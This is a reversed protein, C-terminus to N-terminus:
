KKKGHSLFNYINAEEFTLYHTQRPNKRNNNRLIFEQLVCLEQQVITKTNASTYVIGTDILLENVLKIANAKGSEDCRAGSRRPFRMDKIKFILNNNSPEYDIFGVLGAYNIDSINYKTQIAPQLLTYTYEDTESLENWIHTEKDYILIKQSTKNFLVIFTYDKFNLISSTLYKYIHYELSQINETIPSSYYYNLLEHKENFLLVDVLHEIFLEGLVSYDILKKDVFERMAIGCYKYWSPDGREVRKAEMAYKFTLQYNNSMELLIEYGKHSKGKKGILEPEDEQIDLLNRKGIIPNLVDPNLMADDGVDIYIHSPKSDLPRSRELVSAKTNTLEIPQFLYYEGVNCLYGDHSYKDQIIEKEDIIKTLAMNIQSIDYNKVRNIERILADKKYFHRDKMCMKIINIIHTSNIGVFKENYTHLVLDKELIKASPKCDYQCLKYDCTSSYNVDGVKFDEIVKGTSLIQVVPESFNDQTFNIQDHNILCDISNEKLLRSVEGIQIAKVEANRYVYLDAAEIQASPLITAHLYIEVNRHEFPLDRHSGNRVGRGIIQEIRNMNFWPEMIHIQRIFKLDIGESGAKSILIVKIKNGHKNGIDTVAKVVLENNKTEGTIMAYKATHIKTQLEKRIKDPPMMTTVDVPPTPPTEFLSGSEGYRSFGMEELALAMPILGGDIYQSYILILGNSVIFTDGQKKAICDCITKIKSSYLGINDPSFMRDFKTQKYSYKSRDKETFNMIRSLGESGTLVAYTIYSTDAGGTLTPKSEDDILGEGIKDDSADNKEIIESNFSNIEQNQDEESQDEESQVEQDQNEDKTEDIPALYFEEPNITQSIEDLGDVPYIINLAQLPIQLLTYNISELKSFAPMQRQVGMKTTIMTNQRKLYELIFYYGMIQYKGIPSVYLDLYQPTMEEKIPKGNMQVTPYQSLIDIREDSVNNPLIMTPFIRYPFTYPNEGRVYSVYGRAKRILLERGDPKFDGNKKFITNVNLIGRRDNINMINLLWIIEKCNNYMPTASLLLLRLDSANSVLQLLREAVAKNDENDDAVRINHVEDIIILRSNFENQIKRRISDPNDGQAIKSVYKSFAIYGLFLYSVNILNKIQSIMKERTLGKLKTPNIENLLKNGICSSINWSGNTEVLKREDFLQLKFNDLVNPSAVIIIRKTIGLQRFYDRSEECVGIASCTKGSGLGHYLLLSNYPTQFSLFNKVFAQHPQLVFEANFLTEAHEKIGYKKGNKLEGNHIQGDYKNDNFEKKKAIKINFNPDNLHPYLFKPSGKSLIDHEIDEKELLLTNCKATYYNNPDDCENEAMEKSLQEEKQILEPDMEFDLDQAQAQPQTLDPPEIPQDKTKTPDKIAKKTKNKPSTPSKVKKIAKEKVQKEIKPAGPEKKKRTQKKKIQIEPIENEMM